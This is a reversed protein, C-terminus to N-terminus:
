VLSEEADSRLLWWVLACLLAGVILTWLIGPTAGRRYLNLLWRAALYTM